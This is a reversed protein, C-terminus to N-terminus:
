GFNLTSECNLYGYLLHAQLAAQFTSADLKNKFKAAFKGLEDTDIEGESDILAEQLVRSWCKSVDEDPVYTVEVLMANVDERLPTKLGDIWNIYGKPMKPRKVPPNPVPAAILVFYDIYDQIYGGSSYLEKGIVTIFHDGWRIGKGANGRPKVDTLPRAHAPNKKNFWAYAKKWWKLDAEPNNAEDIGEQGHTLADAMEEISSRLSDEMASENLEFGAAEIRSVIDRNRKIAKVAAKTIQPAHKKYFMDMVIDDVVKGIDNVLDYPLAAGAKVRKLFDAVNMYLGIDGTDENVFVDEVSEYLGAAKLAKVVADKAKKASPYKAGDMTVYIIAGGLFANSDIDQTARIKLGKQLARIAAMEDEGDRTEKVEVVVVFARVLTSVVKAEDMDEKNIQKGLEQWAEMSDLKDLVAAAKKSIEPNDNKNWRVLNTLPRTYKARDKAKTALKLVHDAIKDVGWEKFAGDPMELIGPNEVKVDPASQERMSLKSKKMLRGLGPDTIMMVDTATLSESLVNGYEDVFVIECFNEISEHRPIKISAKKFLKQTRSWSPGGVATGFKGVRVIADLVDSLTFAIDSDTLKAFQLRRILEAINKVFKKAEPVDAAIASAVVDPDPDAKLLATVTYDISAFNIRDGTRRIKEEQKDYAGQTMMGSAEDVDEKVGTNDWDTPDGHKTGGQEKYGIEGNAGLIDVVRSAVEPKNAPVKIVLKGKKEMDGYANVSAGKIKRIAAYVKQPIASTVFVYGKGENLHGDIAEVADEWSVEGEFTGLSAGHNDGDATFAEWVSEDDKGRQIFGVAEGVKSLVAYQADDGGRVRSLTYFGIKHPIEDEAEQLPKHTARPDVNYRSEHLNMGPVSKKGRMGKFMGRTVDQVSKPQGKSNRDTM